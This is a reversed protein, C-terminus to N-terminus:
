KFHRLSTVEGNYILEKSRRVRAKAGVKVIGSEVKCGCIKPGKSLEFIQLIRARGTITERKEPELKGALAATIDELLEYIVTYLRIEVHRKSALDNVGPNVQVHFGVVLANTAAALEIDNDCISGVSNAIVDAKIKESPLELLSQAIAEGSGKVDSKIIINLSRRGESNLKNFLDDATSINSTALQEARKEESRREAELRAEKESNMVMLQDGAEPVGSLGVVKVPFGPKVEKIRKGKDDILMRAKGWCSGCLIPDGAKLTGSQILVHSTPGLGQELQAELVVGEAPGTPDAKLELMDAEVLIRELLDPLGEKTKASVKVVGVKGGWDESTLNNQQMHLLVQDYDAGPLDMKNAAVIIPVDAALAHNMAEVTQPKFGEVASVALVVIDTINAGRARMSTFAAHGPTDIFTIHKGEFEVTSAGIHQTIAGAEGATVNTHRIADQLSTKGHDVHGMFTVVPPRPVLKSEDVERTRVAAPEAAAKPPTGIILEFGAAECIKKANTDSVTKNIGSLEGLKILDTLVENPKRGIAEALTKVVIPSSLTVTNGKDDTGKEATQANNAKRQPTNKMAVEEKRSNGKKPANGRKNNKSILAEEDQQGYLDDFYSEILDAVDEPIKTKEAKDVKVGQRVLESAILNASVGYKVALDKVTLTKSM